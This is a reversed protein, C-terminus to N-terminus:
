LPESPYMRPDNELACLQLRAANDNLDPTDDEPHPVDPGVYHPNRVWVDRTDLLWCRDPRDMGANFAFEALSESGTAIHDEEQNPQTTYM